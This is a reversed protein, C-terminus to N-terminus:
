EAKPLDEEGQRSRRANSWGHKPLRKAVDAM